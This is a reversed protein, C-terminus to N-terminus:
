SNLTKPDWFAIFTSVNSRNKLLGSSSEISNFCTAEFTILYYIKQKFNELGHMM